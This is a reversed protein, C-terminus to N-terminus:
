KIQTLGINVTVIEASNLETLWTPLGLNKGYSSESYITRGQQDLEKKWWSIEQGERWHYSYVQEGDKWEGEEHIVLEKNVYKKFETRNDDKDWKQTIQERKKTNIYRPELGQSNYEWKEVGEKTRRLILDGQENFSESMFTGDSYETHVSQKTKM